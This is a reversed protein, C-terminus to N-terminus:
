GIVAKVLREEVWDYEAAHREPSSSFEVTYGHIFDVLEVALDRIGGLSMPKQGTVFAALEAYNRARQRHLTVPHRALLAREIRVTLSSPNGETPYTANWERDRQGLDRIFARMEDPRMNDIYCDDGTELYQLYAGNGLDFDTQPGDM